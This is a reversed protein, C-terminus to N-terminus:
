VGLWFGSRESRLDATDCHTAGNKEDEIPSSRHLAQGAASGDGSITSSCAVFPGSVSSMDDLILSGRVDVSTCRKGCRLEWNLFDSERSTRQGV